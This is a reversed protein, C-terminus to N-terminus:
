EAGENWPAVGRRHTYEVIKQTCSPVYLAIYLETTMGPTWKPFGRDNDQWKPDLLCAQRRRHRDKLNRLAKAPNALARGVHERHQLDAIQDRHLRKLLARKTPSLHATMAHHDIYHDLHSPIRSQPM